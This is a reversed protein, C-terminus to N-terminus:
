GRDISPNLHLKAVVATAAAVLSDLAIHHAMAEAYSRAAFFRDLTENLGAALAGLWVEIEVVACDTPLTADLLAVQRESLHGRMAAGDFGVTHCSHLLWSSLTSSKEGIGFVVCVTLDLEIDELFHRLPEGHESLWEAIKSAIERIYHLRQLLHLCDVESVDAFNEHATLVTPLSDDM